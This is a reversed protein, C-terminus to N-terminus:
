WLRAPGGGTVRFGPATGQPVSVFAGPECRRAGGARSLDGRWEVRLHTRGHRRAPAHPTASGPPALQEFVALVGGTAMAGLKVQVLTDLFWSGEGAGPPLVDPQNM